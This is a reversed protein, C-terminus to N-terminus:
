WESWKPTYVKAANTREYHTIMVMTRKQFKDMKGLQFEAGLLGKSGM